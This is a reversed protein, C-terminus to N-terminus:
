CPTYCFKIVDKDAITQSSVGFSAYDGNVYFAWYAKNTNYEAFVGNIETIFLGYGTDNGKFDFDAYLKKCENLADLVYYGETILSFRENGKELVGYDIEITVTKVGEHKENLDGCSVGVFFCCVMALLLMFSVIKKM